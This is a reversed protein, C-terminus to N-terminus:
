KPTVFIGRFLPNSSLPIRIFPPKVLFLPQNGNLIYAVVVRNKSFTNLLKNVYQKGDWFLM